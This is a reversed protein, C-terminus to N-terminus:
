MVEVVCFWVSPEGLDVGLVARAQATFEQWVARDLDSITRCVKLTTLDSPDTLLVGVIVTHQNAESQTIVGPHRRNTLDNFDQWADNSAEVDPVPTGYILVQRYNM